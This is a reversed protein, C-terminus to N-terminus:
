GLHHDADADHGDFEQAVLHEDLHHGDQGTDAEVPVRTGAWSPSSGSLADRRIERHDVGTQVVGDLGPMLGQGILDAPLRGGPEGALEATTPQEEAGTWKRGYEPRAEQGPALRM